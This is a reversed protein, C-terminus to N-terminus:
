WSCRDCSFGIRFKHGGELSKTWSHNDVPFAAVQIQGGNKLARLFRPNFYETRGDVIVLQNVFDIELERFYSTKSWGLEVDHLTGDDGPLKYALTLRSDATADGHAGAEFYMNEATNFDFAFFPTRIGVDYWDSNTVTATGGIGIAASTNSGQEPSDRFRENISDVIGMIIM